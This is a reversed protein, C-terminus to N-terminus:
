AAALSTRRYQQLDEKRQRYFAWLLKAYEFGCEKSRTYLEKGIQGIQHVGARRIRHYFERYTATQSDVKEEAEEALYEVVVDGEENKGIRAANPVLPMSHYNTDGALSGYMKGMVDCDDADFQRMEKFLNFLEGFASDFGKENAVGEFWQRMEYSLSGVYLLMYGALFGRKGANYKKNLRMGYRHWPTLTTPEHGVIAKDGAIISEEYLMRDMAGLKLNLHEGTAIDATIADLLDHDIEDVMRQHRGLQVKCQLAEREMEELERKVETEFGKVKM